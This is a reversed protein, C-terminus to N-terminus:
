SCRKLMKLKDIYEYDADSAKYLSVACAKELFELMAEAEPLKVYLYPKVFELLKKIEHKRVVLIKNAPRTSMKQMRGLEVNYEINLGYLIETVREYMRISPTQIELLSLINKNIGPKIRRMYLCGEGDILGALWAIDTDKM